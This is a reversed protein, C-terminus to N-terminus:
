RRRWFSALGGLTMVLLTAPEPITLHLITNEGGAAFVDSGNGWVGYLDESVGSAMLTWADGDYHIITGNNGVAYVDDPAVVHVGLLVASTPTTMPSWATGDFRIVVGDRGVAYVNDHDYGSISFLDAVTTNTPMLSWDTGDFHSIFNGHGWGGGALFVDDPGSAWIENVLTPISTSALSWGQGDYHYAAGDYTQGFFGGAYVDSPSVPWIGPVANVSTYSTSWESGDYHLIGYNGSVWVDSASSGNVRLLDIGSHSEMQEWQGGDYHLIAGGLGVAFVNGRSTGWIDHLGGNTPCVDMQQWGTGEAHAIGGLCIPMLLVAIRLFARPMRCSTRTNM